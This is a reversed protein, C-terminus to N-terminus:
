APQIFARLAPVTKDSKALRAAIATPLEDFSGAGKTDYKYHELFQLFQDFNAGAETVLAALRQQPTETPEAPAAEVAPAPAPQTKPQAPALDGDDQAFTSVPTATNEAIAAPARFVPKAVTVATAQISVAEESADDAEVADRFEPSLPLMKTLRRLATKKKMEQEAVWNDPDWTSSKVYGAKWAKYGQSGDRIAYVEDISMVAVASAGDRMRAFAYVAIDQGAQDPKDRDRRLFWPVHERIEGLNYSFLDGERVVDAHLYSVLGSRMALEVLGKYDLILTCITRNNRKDEFPILHARRGDPELGFQSCQLLCQTVSEQTCQALKPVRMAATLAVRLFRDPTLHRPLAKAVMARFGDSELWSELTAAPKAPPTSAGRTTINSM